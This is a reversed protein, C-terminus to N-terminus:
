HKLMNIGTIAVFTIRKKRYQLFKLVFFKM